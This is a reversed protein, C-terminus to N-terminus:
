SSGPWGSYGNEPRNRIAAMSSIEEIASCIVMEDAAVHLRRVAMVM